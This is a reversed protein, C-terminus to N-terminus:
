RVVRTRIVGTIANVAALQEDSIPMETDVLTYGVEGRNGFQSNAISNGKECLAATVKDLMEPDNLHCVGLRGAFHPVGLTVRPFNVSNVINGNELYDRTEQVAMVACNDEAEETSAGLHPLVVCHPNGALTPTAFDTMYKKVKGAELAKAMDPENVILDRAANIIIVGKKMQDIADMDIMGKTTAMAPLHLTIFDADQYLDAINTVHRVLPNLAWAGDVSLFPDYGIVNMGLEVAINAVLRGIAGLGVVGLTKSMIEGGAFNKKAKEQAKYIDPDDKNAKVWEAGGILDRSAMLMLAIVLEKVANANAGPTNFVVIGKHAYGAHPINNVGAGARAVSLWKESIPLDDMKTSRVLIANAEQVDAVESYDKTLHKMGVQSISSLCNYTFM